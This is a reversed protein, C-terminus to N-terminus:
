KATFQLRILMKNVVLSVTIINLQLVKGNEKAHNKMKLTREREKMEEHLLTDMAM